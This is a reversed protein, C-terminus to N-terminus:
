GIYVSFHRLLRLADPGWHLVDISVAVSMQVNPYGCLRQKIKGGRSFEFFDSWSENSITRIVFTTVVSCDIRITGEPDTTTMKVVPQKTRSINMNIIPAIIDAIEPIKRVLISLVTIV